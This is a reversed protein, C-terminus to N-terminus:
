NNFSHPNRGVQETLQAQLVAVQVLAAEAHVRPQCGQCLCHRRPIHTQCLGLSSGLMAESTETIPACTTHLTPTTCGAQSCGQLTNIESTLTYIIDKPPDDIYLSLVVMCLPRVSGKNPQM